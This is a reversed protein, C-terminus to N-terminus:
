KLDNLKGDFYREGNVDIVGDAIGEFVGEIFGLVTADQLNVCCVDFIGVLFEVIVIM